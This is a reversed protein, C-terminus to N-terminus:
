EDSGSAIGEIGDAIKSGVSGIRHLHSGDAAGVIGRGDRSRDASSAALDRQREEGAELIVGVADERRAPRTGDGRTGVGRDIRDIGVGAGLGHIELSGVVVVEESALCDGGIAVIDLDVEPSAEAIVILAPDLSAHHGVGGDVRGEDGQEIDVIHSAFPFVIVEGGVVEVSRSGIIDGEFVVAGTGVVASGASDVVDGDALGVAAGHRTEGSEVGDIGGEDGEMPDGAGGVIVELQGVTELVIDVGSRNDAADGVGDVSDVVEVAVAGVMEPHAAEAGRAVGAEPIICAADAGSACRTHIGGNKLIESGEVVLSRAAPSDHLAVVAVTTDIRIGRGVITEGEIRM